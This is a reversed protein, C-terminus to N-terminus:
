GSLHPSSISPSIPIPIPITDPQVRRSHAAAAARVNGQVSWGTVESQGPAPLIRGPGPRTLTQAATPQYRRLQRVTDFLLGDVVLHPVALLDGCAHALPGNGKVRVVGALAFREHDTCPQASGVDVRNSKKATQRCWSQWM